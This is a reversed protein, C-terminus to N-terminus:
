INCITYVHKGTSTQPIDDVIRIDTHCKYGFAKNILDYLKGKYQWDGVSFRGNAVLKIEIADYGTQIVQFKKIRKDNCSVGILHVFFQSSIFGGSSTKFSSGQRGSIEKLLPYPRGCKCQGGKVVRDGIEYRLLPMTYNHLTTILVDGEEGEEVENGDKDVIEVYLNEGVVHLGNHQKCEAAINGADRSGYRDFVKCGFVTEITKRMHPFLVGASSVISVPSHVQINQSSAYDALLYLSDAYGEVTNPKKSNIRSLYNDLRVHSSMKFSNITSRNGIFDSIAQKIGMHGKALDREAGWLKVSKSGIRGGAWEQTLYIAALTHTQYNNDQYITLPVGTSGGTTNKYIGLGLEVHMEDIHDRIQSKTIIPFRRLAKVPDKEIDAIIGADILSKYYPINKIAHTIISTLRSDRREIYRSNSDWQGSSYERYIPLVPMRKLRWFLPELVKGSLLEHFLDIM